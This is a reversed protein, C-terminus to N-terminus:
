FCVHYRTICDTILFDRHVLDKGLLTWFSFMINRNGDCWRTKGCHRRGHRVCLRDRPTRYDVARLCLICRMAWIRLWASRKHLCSPSHYPRNPLSPWWTMPRIYTKKFNLCREFDLPWNKAHQIVLTESVWIMSTAKSSIDLNWVTILYVLMAILMVEQKTGTYSVDVKMTSKGSLKATEHVLLKQAM